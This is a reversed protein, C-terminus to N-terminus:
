MGAMPQFPGLGPPGPQPTGVPLQPALNLPVGGTLDRVMSAIRLRCQYIAELEQAESVPKFYTILSSPPM